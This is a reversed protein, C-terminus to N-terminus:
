RKTFITGGQMALNQEWAITHQANIEDIQNADWFALVEEILARAASESAAMIIQPFREQYFTWCAHRAIQLPTDPEIIAEINTYEDTLPRMLPTFVHAQHSVVWSREGDPLADNVAFKTHDVNDAHGAVAWRWLALEAVREPENDPNFNLIPNGNSDYNEWLVSGDSLIQGQPGYMMEISGQKTLLYTIWEYIREPKEAATFICTVNWGITGYHDGYLRSPSLGNNPPYLRTLGEAEWQVIEISDGPYAARMEKRFNNGDDQSHDYWVLGIRASTLKELFQERTDTFTVAPVLGERFWRNAELLAEQYVPDMMLPIYVPNGDNNVVGRWGDTHAGGMSRYIARVFNEGNVTGAEFSVPIVPQGHSTPVNDRVAVAYDFLEDWTTISPSGAAEYISQTYMWCDNGGSADKRAWNPVGYLVGDIKLHEQTQALINDDYWNNDMLPKLTDLDVFYGDRALRRNWDNRDMWIADPFDGSSVMLTLLEDASSDPFQFTPEINFMENWYISTLDEGWVDTAWDYNRYYIFAYHDRETAVPEDDGDDTAATGGGTDTTGGGTAAPTPTAAPTGSDGTCAAALGAIMVLAVLLALLKNKKM